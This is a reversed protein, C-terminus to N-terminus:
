RMIFENAIEDYSRQLWMELGWKGDEYIIELPILDLKVLAVLFMVRKRNSDGYKKKKKM